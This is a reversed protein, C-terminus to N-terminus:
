DRLFAAPLAGAGLRGSPGVLALVGVAARPPGLPAELLVVRSRGARGALPRVRPVRPPAITAASSLWDKLARTEGVIATVPTQRRQRFVVAGARAGRLKVLRWLARALKDELAPTSDLPTLLDAVVAGLSGTNSM